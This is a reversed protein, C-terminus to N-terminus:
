APTGDPMGSMDLHTLEVELVTEYFTKARIIDETYIEFWCVANAEM